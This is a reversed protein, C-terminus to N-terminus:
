GPAQQGATRLTVTKGLHDSGPIDLLHTAGVQAGHGALLHDLPVLCAGAYTPWTPRLIDRGGDVGTAGIFNRFSRDWPVTNLDGVVCVPGAEESVWTELMRWQRNRQATKAASEPARLHVAFLILPGSPTTIAARISPLGDLSVVDANRVPVRSFLAIGYFREGGGHVHWPYQDGLAAVLDQYWRDDTELVALVDAGTSRAVAVVEAYADNDEHVYLLAVRLFETGSPKGPRDVLFRATPLATLLAAVFAGVALAKRGKWWWWVTVPLLVATIPLLFARANLLPFPDGGFALLVGLIVLALAQPMGSRFGKGGREEM